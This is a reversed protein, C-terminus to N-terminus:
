VSLFFLLQWSFTGLVDQSLMVICISFSLLQFMGQSLILKYVQFSSCFNGVLFYGLVNQMHSCSRYQFLLQLMIQSLTLM